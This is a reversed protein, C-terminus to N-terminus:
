KSFELDIDKISSYKLLFSDRSYNQYWEFKKKSLQIIQQEQTIQQAFGVM